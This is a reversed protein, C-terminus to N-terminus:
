GTLAAAALIPRGGTTVESSAVAACCFCTRCALLLSAKHPCRHNYLGLVQAWFHTPFKIRVLLAHSPTRIAWQM